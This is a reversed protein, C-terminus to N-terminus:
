SSFWSSNQANNLSSYRMKPALDPAFNPALYPALSPALFPDFSPALSPSFGPALSPALNPALSPVLDPAWTFVDNLRSNQAMGDVWNMDEFASFDSALSPV